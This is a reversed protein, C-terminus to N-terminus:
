ILCNRHFYAYKGSLEDVSSIPICEPLLDGHLHNENTPSDGPHRPVFRAFLAERVENFIDGYKYDCYMWICGVEEVEWPPMTGWLLRWADAASFPKGYWDNIFQDEKRKPRVPYYEM